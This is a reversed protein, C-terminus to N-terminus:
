PCAEALEVVADEGADEDYVDVIHGTRLEHRKIALQLVEDTLTWTRRCDLCHATVGPTRVVKLPTDAAAPIRSSGVSNTSGREVVHGPEVVSPQRRHGVCKTASPACRWGTDSQVFRRSGVRGCLECTRQVGDARRSSKVEAANVRVQQLHEAATAIQNTISQVADEVIDDTRAAVDTIMGQVLGHVLARILGCVQDDSLNEIALRVAHFPNNADDTQATM